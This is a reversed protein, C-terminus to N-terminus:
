SRLLPAFFVLWLSLTVMGALSSVMISSSAAGPAARYQEALISTLVGTPMAALLTITAVWLPPLAFVYSAVLYT